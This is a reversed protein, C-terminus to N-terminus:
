ESLFAKRVFDDLLPGCFDACLPGEDASRHKVYDVFAPLEALKRTADETLSWEHVAILPKGTEKEVFTLINEEFDNIMRM